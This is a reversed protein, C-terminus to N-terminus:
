RIYISLTPVPQLELLGKEKVKWIESETDLIPTGGTGTLGQAVMSKRQECVKGPGVDAVAVSSSAEIGIVPPARIVATNAFHDLPDGPQSRIQPRRSGCRLYRNELASKM